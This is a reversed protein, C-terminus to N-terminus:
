KYQRYLLVGHLNGFKYSAKTIVYLHHTVDTDNVSLVIYANTYKLANFNYGICIPCNFGQQAISMPTFCFRLMMTDFTTLIKCLIM